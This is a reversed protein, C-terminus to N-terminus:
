AVFQSRGIMLPEPPSKLGLTILAQEKLALIDKAGNAHPRYHFISGGHEDVQALWGCTRIETAARAIGEHQM